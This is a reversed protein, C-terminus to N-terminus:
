TPVKHSSLFIPRGEQNYIDLADQVLLVSNEEQKCSATGCALGFAFAALMARTSPSENGALASLVDPHMRSSVPASSSSSELSRPTSSSTRSSKSADVLARWAALTGAAVADGAGIPYIAPTALVNSAVGTGIGVDPISTQSESWYGWNGKDETAAGEATASTETSVVLKAVPLQFLRFESESSVPMAAFYAPHLGDTIAIANLAHRANDFKKLFSSLAEVIEEPKTGGTESSSKKVGAINCLEAANCKLIASASKSAIADMLPVLGSTSDIVCLTKSTGVRTFIDAYTHETCGPPMSGMVCLADATLPTLQEMLQEMEERTVVGSPEVLETTSTEAVVSTCTRLHSQTRTTTGEMVTQGLLNTLLQCVTDGEAGSGIFQLLHYNKYELCSLTIAADQGKGGVGVQVHQARHVDGPILSPTSSPLVFRKQLAANLGVVITTTSSSSSLSNNNTTSMALVLPIISLFSLVLFM